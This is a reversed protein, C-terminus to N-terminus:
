LGRASVRLDVALRFATVHQEATRSWDRRDLNPRRGRSAVPAAQELRIGRTLDDATLSGSYCRIWDKGVEAALAQNVANDPVLVPRDLSLAALVTGSNHMERYPLVVLQAATVARVLEADTLFGLHLEVRPDREALGRLEEGLATSSPQGGVFLTFREAGETRAEGFARILTNVGKYRRVLGVYALRGSRLADPPCRSFWDRYHGHLITVHRREGLDTHDNLRIWLTTNREFARLLATERRTIGQPLEINHLTRVVTTGTLKLRLMFAAFLLQRIAGRAPTSGSVLIEPWHAHFVDYRHSLARRWTFTDVRVGSDANLCRHLMVIYPNTTPRSAPFSELVQLPEAPRSRGARYLAALGDRTGTLAARWPDWSHILQRRGGRLLIDWAEAPSSLAWRRRTARDLQAAAFVLRNRINYYYYLASRTRQGASTQSTGGEDHVAHADRVVVLSAGNARCRWSLDVDEWYLFYREDFGGVRDWMEASILLCAGTLWETVAATSDPARKRTARMRGTALYLDSGDFWLRGETTTIVPAAVTLPDASVRDILRLLGPRDIRADPNLLLFRLAGAAGAARVGANVGGGFGLNTPSAVLTWGNADSLRQVRDLEAASTYNDVVVVSLEPVARHVVTLNQALLQSSGYNVVIVATSSAPSM